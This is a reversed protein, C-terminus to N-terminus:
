SRQFEGAIVNTSVPIVDGQTLRALTTRSVSLRRRQDTDGPAM